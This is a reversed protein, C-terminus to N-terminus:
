RVEAIETVPCIRPSHLHDIVFRVTMVNNLLELGVPVGQFVTGNTLTVTSPEPGGRRNMLELVKQMIEDTSMQRVEQARYLHEPYIYAREITVNGLQRGGYRTAL